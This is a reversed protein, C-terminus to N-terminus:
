YPSQRHKAARVSRREKFRQRDATVRDMRANERGRPSYSILLSIVHLISKVTVKLCKLLLRLTKRPVGPDRKTPLTSGSKSVM